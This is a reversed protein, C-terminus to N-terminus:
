QYEIKRTTLYRLTDNEYEEKEIWSGNKDFRYRYVNTRILSDNEDYEVTKLPLGLDDFKYKFTTKKIPDLINSELLTSEYLLESSDYKYIRNSLSVTDKNEIFIMSNIRKLLKGEDSYFYQEIMENIGDDIENKSYIKQLLTDTYFYKVIIEHDGLHGIEKTVRGEFNYINISSYTTKSHVSLNEFEILKGKRNLRWTSIFITDKIINDNGLSEISMKYDTYEKIRGKLGPEDITKYNCNLLLSFIFLSIVKKM